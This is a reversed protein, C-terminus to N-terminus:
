NKDKSKASSKDNSSKNSNSNKTSDSAEAKNSSSSSSKSKSNDAKKNNTLGNNNDDSDGSDKDETTKKTNDKQTNSKSSSKNEKVASDSSPKSAPKVSKKIAKEEKEADKEDAKGTKKQEKAAAKESKKISKEETKTNNNNKDSELTNEEAAADEITADETSSLSDAPNEDEISNVEEKNADESTETTEESDSLAYNRNEKIAKMIEKVPKNLWEEKNISDSNESSAILKEVLNLKGPTVGLAKAEQVRENGVGIAEVEVTDGTEVLASEVDEKLEEALDESKEADETSAAIVIGGPSEGDFYGQSAIKEVTDALASGITQNKLDSLEIEKLIEEGDDNVAKVSLVRDFRNVTFEISPNVDLSVYSYPSAYAWTGTGLGLILIAASAACAALKKTNHIRHKKLEIVQGISYNNNKVKTICGDDSLVAAYDDKIEVIISKM